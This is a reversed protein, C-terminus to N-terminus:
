REEIAALEALQELVAQLAALEEGYGAWDGAKLYQQAKDYHQQAEEILSAIEASVAPEEPEAPPPPTVVVETPPAETGFIAAISKEL